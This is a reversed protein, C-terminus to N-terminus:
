KAKKTEVAPVPEETAAAASADPMLAAFPSPAAAFPRKFDGEPKQGLIHIRLVQFWVMSLTLM